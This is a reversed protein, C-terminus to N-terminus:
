IRALTAVSPRQSKRMAGLSVAPMLSCAACQVNLFCVSCIWGSVRRQRRVAAFVLIRRGIEQTFCSPPCSEWKQVIRLAAALDDRNFLWSKPHTRFLARYGHIVCCFFVRPSHVHQPSTTWTTSLPPFSPQAFDPPTNIPPLSLSAVSGPISKRTGSLIPPRPIKM